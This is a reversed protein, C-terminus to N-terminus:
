APPLSSNPAPASDLIGRSFFVPSGGNVKLYVDYGDLAWEDTYNLTFTEVGSGSGSISPSPVGIIGSENHGSTGVNPASSAGYGNSFDIGTGSGGGFFTLSYAL